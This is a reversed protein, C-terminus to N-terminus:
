TSARGKARSDEARLETSSVKDGGGGGDAAVLGVVVLALPAMGAAVRGANIRDGGAVTEESVVLAAMSPDADAATPAAPDELAGTEVALGPRVAKCFAVAAAEREEYAQLLGAHAKGDLLRAATVGVFLADRAVAASAALLLRHGAHLRDFTGGV